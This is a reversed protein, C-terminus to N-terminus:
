RGDAIRGEAVAVVRHYRKLEAELAARGAETLEYCVRREDGMRPDARQDSERILAAEKMRGISGYLTGTGMKAKGESDAEVQKMIGYGPREGTSLAPLIHLVAASGSTLATTKGINPKSAAAHSDPM